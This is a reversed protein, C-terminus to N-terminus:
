HNFTILTWYFPTIRVSEKKSKSNLDDYIKKLDNLICSIYKNKTSMLIFFINDYGQMCSYWHKLDPDCLTQFFIIFNEDLSMYKIEKSYTYLSDWNQDSTKSM